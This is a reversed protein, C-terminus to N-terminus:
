YHWDLLIGDNTELPNYQLGELPTKQVRILIASKKKDSDEKVRAKNEKKPKQVKRM